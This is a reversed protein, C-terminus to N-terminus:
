NVKEMDAMHGWSYVEKLLVCQGETDVEQVTFTLALVWKPVDTGEHAHGYVASDVFFRVKDGPKYPLNPLPIVLPKVPEPEKMNDGFGTKILTVTQGFGNEGDLTYKIGEVFYMGELYKGVGYFDITTMYTLSLTKNTPLLVADGRLINYDYNRFERETEQTDANEQSKQESLMKQYAKERATDDYPIGGYPVESLPMPYGQSQLAVSTQNAIWSSYSKSGLNIDAYKVDVKRTEKDITPSFSKVNNIGAGDKYFLQMSVKDLLGLRVYFFTDGILKAVFLEREQSALQELFEIDTQDSQSISEEMIYSYDDQTVLKFGYKSIKDRVVDVSRVNHWTQTNKVRQMLHTKDLCYLEITPSGDEPFNATVESIYGYFTLKEPFGTFLMDCSIPVDQMFVDDQLYEMNEDYLVITMSDSGQVTKEITISKIDEKRSFPITVGNLAVWYEVSYVNFAAENLDAM